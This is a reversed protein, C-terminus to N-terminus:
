DMFSKIISYAANRGSRAAWAVTSKVGAVDGGAYVKDNSTKGDSDIFIRDRKKELDLDQVFSDPHSGVAMIVYDCKLKKNTGEIDEPSPRSDGDKKVLRTKVVEIGEVKEDGIVQLINTLFLFKVGDRKADKVEKETAPMEDESRRYVVIVKKAGSRKITRAADMAVNGGGSIIVIKGKYDLKKKHELLENAGYVGLLDEGNINMKNSINAGVALFVRDYKSTLDEITMDKGLEMNYKVDIGLNIINNVVKKVISRPLRFKPIGHVLLGGLYDYKEYITVGIGNKRLFAACTLGAPGGGVIAVKRKTTKPVKVSFGRELSLDGIYAELEGIQVPKKSVGRVCSGECQDLHPCIRGCVSMLFTTESLINFAEEDNKNKIEKIFGTIDNNLPCGVQCPKTVCSACYKALRMKKLNNM